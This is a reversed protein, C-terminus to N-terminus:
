TNFIVTRDFEGAVMSIRFSSIVAHPINGMFFPPCQRCASSVAEFVTYVLCILASGIRYDGTIAAISGSDEAIFPAKVCM